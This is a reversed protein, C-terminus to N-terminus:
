MYKSHVIQYTRDLTHAWSVMLVTLDAFMDMVRLVKRMSSQVIDTGNRWQRTGTVM